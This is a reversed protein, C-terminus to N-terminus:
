AINRRHSIENKFILHGRLWREREVGGEASLHFIARVLSQKKRSFKLSLFSKKKKQVTPRFSSKLCSQNTCKRSSSSIFKRLISQRPVALHLNSPRFKAYMKKAPRLFSMDGIYDCGSTEGNYFSCKKVKSYDIWKVFIAMSQGLYVTRELYIEFILPIFGNTCNRIESIIHLSFM